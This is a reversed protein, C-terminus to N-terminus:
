NKSCKPCDSVKINPEGCRYCFVKRKQKCIRFTHGPSKCNFCIQKSKDNLTSSQVSKNNFSNKNNSIDQSTSPM